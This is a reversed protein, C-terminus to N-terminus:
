RRYGMQRMVGGHRQWFLEHLDAPMETRWSGIQGRRFFKPMLQHLEEFSPMTTGGTETLDHGVAALSRRVQGVPDEVLREFSVIETRPRRSWAAVNPGWGGFSGDYAILDHLTTRFAAEEDEGRTAGNAQGAPEFSLVYRAYSVLVDRGDRVLYFAPYDDGSPLDHTKIFHTEPMQALVDLPQEMPAHGVIQAIKGVQRDAYISHTQIGYLRNLLLRFFTNGSRPYSALWIIM